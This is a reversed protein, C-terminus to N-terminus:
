QGVVDGDTAFRDLSPGDDYQVTALRANQIIAGDILSQPQHRCKQRAPRTDNERRLPIHSITASGFHNQFEDLLNTVPSQRECQRQTQGLAMDPRQAGLAPHPMEPELDRLFGGCGRAVIVIGNVPGGELKDAAHRLAVFVGPFRAVRM